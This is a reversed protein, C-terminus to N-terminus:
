KMNECNKILLKTSIYIGILGLLLVWGYNLNTPDYTNPVEYRTPPDTKPPNTPTPTPTPTPVDGSTNVYKVEKVKKDEITGSSKNDKQGNVTTEYDPVMEEIIEYQNM